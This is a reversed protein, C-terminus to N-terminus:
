RLLTARSLPKRPRRPGRGCSPPDHRPIHKQTVGSASPSSRHVSQCDCAAATVTQMPKPGWVASVTRNSRPPAISHSAIFKEAQITGKTPCVNGGGAVGLRCGPQVQTGRGDVADQTRTRASIWALSTVRPRESVQPSSMWLRLSTQSRSKLRCCIADPAEESGRQPRNSIGRNRSFVRLFDYENAM